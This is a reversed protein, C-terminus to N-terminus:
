CGGEDSKDVLPKDSMLIPASSEIGSRATGLAPVRIEKAAEHQPAAVHEATQLAQLLHLLLM